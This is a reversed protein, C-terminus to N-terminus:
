FTFIVSVTLSLWERRLYKGLFLSAVHRAYLINMATELIWFSSVVCINILLFIFLNYIRVISYYEMIFIFSSKVCLCACMCIFRFPITSLSLFREMPMVNWFVYALRNIPVSPLDATAQPSPLPKWPLHCLLLLFTQPIVFIKVIKITTITEHIYTYVHWVLWIIM